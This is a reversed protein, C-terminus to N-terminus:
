MLRDEHTIKLGVGDGFWFEDDLYGSRKSSKAASWEWLRELPKRYARGPERALSLLEPIEERVELVFGHRQAFLEPNTQCNEALANIPLYYRRWTESDSQLGIPERREDAPPDKWYMRLQKSAGARYLCSAVRLDPSAGDITEINQAQAKAGDILDSNLGSNRGKAEFAAWRGHSPQYGILDACSRGSKLDISGGRNQFLKAHVLWPMDLFKAACLKVFVMGLFFNVAGKESPDFDQFAPSNRIWGKSSSFDLSAQVMNWRYQMEFRSYHDHDQVSQKDPRGVTITSWLLATKTFTL